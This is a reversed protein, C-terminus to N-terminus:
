PRQVCLAHSNPGVRTGGLLCTADVLPRGGIPMGLDVVVPFTPDTCQRGGMDPESPPALNITIRIEGDVVRVGPRLPVRETDGACEFPRVFVHVKTDTDTVSFAPDIFWPSQVGPEPDTAPTGPDAAPQTTPPGLFVTTTTSAAAAPAATSTPASATSSALTSSVAETTTGGQSSPESTTGCGVLGVAMAVVAALRIRSTAM